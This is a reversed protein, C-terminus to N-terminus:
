NLVQDLSTATLVRNFWIELQASPASNIKEEISNHLPGFKQHLTLLLFRAQGKEMGKEMGKKIGQGIGKEIGKEIGKVEGETLGKEYLRRFFTDEMPDILLSMDEVGEIVTDGLNRKASLILLLKCARLRQGPELPRLRDLIRRLTQGSDAHRNLIALIVDGIKESSLLEEANLNGLDIMEVEYILRPEPQDILAPMRLPERGMYLVVQKPSVGYKKRIAALYDLMRWILDVDNYSQFEIHFLAGTTLRCVFDARLTKTEPLEVNLWEEAAAGAFKETLSTGVSQFLEKLAVDFNQM